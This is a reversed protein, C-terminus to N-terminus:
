ELHDWVVTLLYCHKVRLVMDQGLVWNARQNGAFKAILKLVRTPVFGSSWHWVSSIGLRARGDIREETIYGLPHGTNKL